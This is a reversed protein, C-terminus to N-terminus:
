HGHHHGHNHSNSNRKKVIADVTKSTDDSFIFTLPITGGVTLPSEPDFLMLHYAGPSLEIHNNAQITLSEQKEMKAIDAVVKSLHLEIKPFLPSSVSTLTQTEDSINQIKAYAALTTVTPPAASIWVDTIIINKNEEAYATNFLTFCLIFLLKIKLM